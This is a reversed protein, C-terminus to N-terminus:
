LMKRLSLAAAAFVSMGRETPFAELMPVDAPRAQQLGRKLVAITLVNELGKGEEAATFLVNEMFSVPNRNTTCVYKCFIVLVSALDNRIRKWNYTVCMSRCLWCISV